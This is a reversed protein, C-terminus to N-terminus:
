AERSDSQRGRTFRLARPRRGPNAGSTRTHGEVIIADYGGSTMIAQALRRLGATGVSWAGAANRGIHVRRAILTTGIDEPEGMILVDIGPALVRITVVGGETADEVLALSYTVGSKDTM